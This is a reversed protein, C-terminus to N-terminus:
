VICLITDSYFRLKITHIIRDKAEMRIGMILNHPLISLQMANAIRAHVIQRASLIGRKLHM